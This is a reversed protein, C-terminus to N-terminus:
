ATGAAGILECPDFGGDRLRLPRAPDRKVAGRARRRELARRRARSARCAARAASTPTRRQAAPSRRRAADRHRHVLGARQPVRRRDRRSVDSPRRLGSAQAQRPGSRSRARLAMASASPMPGPHRVPGPAPSARALGRRRPPHRRDRGTSLLLPRRARSILMSGGAQPGLREAEVAHRSTAAGADRSRIRYAAVHFHAAATRERGGTLSASRRRLRPGAPREGTRQRGACRSYVAVARGRADPGVDLDFPVKRSRVPLRDVRGARWRVLVNVGQTIQESWAVQGAYPM